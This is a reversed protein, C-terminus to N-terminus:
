SFLDHFSRHELLVNKYWSFIREQMSIRKVLSNEHHASVILGHDKCHKQSQCPIPQLIVKPETSDLQELLKEPPSSMQDEEEPNEKLEHSFSVLSSPQVPELHNFEDCTQKKELVDFYANCVLITDLCLIINFMKLIHMDKEFDSCLLTLESQSYSILPEIHKEFFTNYIFIDDFNLYCM